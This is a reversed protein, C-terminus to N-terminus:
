LQLWTGWRSTQLAALLFKENHAGLYMCYRALGLGHRPAQERLVCCRQLGGTVAQGRQV